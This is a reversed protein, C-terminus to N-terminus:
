NTGLIKFIEDLNSTLYIETRRNKAKGEPTSNVAIPYFEGRGTPTIRKPDISNEKTLIKVISTARLVSLDWNDKVAGGKIPVNDTHGEILINIDPNKQLVDALKNLATKGKPDVVTSGSKFLLQESLSVLVKGNKVEVTLEKDNFGLLADTIKTKLNNVVSDKRQLLGQLDKLKNERLKLDTNLNLINKEKENLMSEMTKLDNEKKELEQKKNELELNLEQNENSSNTLLEKNQSIVKEYLQNLNDNMEKIKRYKDNCNATDILMMRISKEQETTKDKLEDRETTVQRLKENSSQNETRLRANNEQEIQFQRAPVCANILAITVLFIIQKM